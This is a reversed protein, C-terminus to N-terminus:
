CISAARFPTIAASLYRTALMSSRTDPSIIIVDYRLMLFDHCPSLLSIDFLSLRTFM